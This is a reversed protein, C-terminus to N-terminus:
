FTFIIKTQKFLKLKSPLSLLSRIIPHGLWGPVSVCGPSTVGLWFEANVCHFLFSETLWCVAFPDLIKPTIPVLLLFLVVRTSVRALSRWTFPQFFTLCPMLHRKYMKKLVWCFEKRENMWPFRGVFNVKMSNRVEM